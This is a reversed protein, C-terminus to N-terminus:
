QGPGGHGGVVQGGRAGDQEVEVAGQGVGGGVQRGGDVQHAGAGAEGRGGVLYQAGRSGSARAAHDAGRIADGGAFAAVLGQFGAKEVVVFGRQRHFAAQEVADGRQQIPQACQAQGPAHDGVLRGAEGVRQDALNAEGGGGAYDGAVGHRVRFGVGGGQQFRGAAQVQRRFGAPVDAVVQAVDLGAAGGAHARDGAGPAVAAGDLRLVPVGVVQQVRRLRQKLQHASHHLRRLRPLQGGSPKFSRRGPRRDM